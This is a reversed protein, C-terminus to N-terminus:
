RRINVLEGLIADATTISRINAQVGRQVIIMETLQQAMDVNSMELSGSQVSADIEHGARGVIPQGSSTSVKYVNGGESLLGNSNRFDALALQALTRIIGNSFLGEIAGDERITMMELSGSGYGDQDTALADSAANFQTLGDFGGGADFSVTVDDAGNAPTFTISGNYFDKLSGDANFSVTGAGGTKITADAVSAAWTWENAANTPAFTVTVTHTDGLGDYVTISTTHTLADRGQANEMFIPLDAQGASSEALSLSIATASEGKVVDALVINGSSDLTADVGSFATNITDLLDQVTTGTTGYTFSASVDSGSPNTGSIKIVDGNELAKSVIPLVSLDDALAIRGEEPVGASLGLGLPTLANGDLTLQRGTAGTQFDIGSGTANLMAQVEGNLNASNAIQINIENILEEASFYIRPDLQVIDTVSGGASDDVTITIDTDVAAITVPLTLDGGSIIARQALAGSWVQARSLSDIDLNGHLTVSETANAEIQQTMSLVVDGVPSATEVAGDQGASWGQLIYGNAPDILRGFTDYAFTGTRTYHQQVGDSLIFFGEGQLALDTERGTSELTGQSFVTDVSGVSAGLGLQTPNTAAQGEQSATGSRMTQSLLTQFNARGYKFGLTNVNALNNGLVTM